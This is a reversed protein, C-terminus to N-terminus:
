GTLCDHNEPTLFFARFENPTWTYIKIQGHENLTGHKEGLLVSIAGDVDQSSPEEPLSVLSQVYRNHVSVILRCNRKLIRWLEKLVIDPDNFLFLTHECFVMDFTEDAYSTGAINCKELIIKDKLKEKEAREAAIKLMESSVDMLVVRCGKKAMRIAWRGTGGGADLILADTKTPINPEVFRWTIADFVKYYLTEFILDYTSAKKNYYGEITM